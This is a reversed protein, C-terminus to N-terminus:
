PCPVQNGAHDFCFTGLVCYSTCREVCVSQEHYWFGNTQCQWLTSETVMPSIESSQVTSELLGDQEEDVEASDVACGAISTLTVFLAMAFSGKSRM